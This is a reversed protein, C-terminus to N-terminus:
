QDDTSPYDQPASDEPAPGLMRDFLRELLAPASTATTPDLASQTLGVITFAILHADLDIPPAPTTPTIHRIRRLYHAIVDVLPLFGGIADTMAFSDGSTLAAAFFADLVITDQRRPEDLPLLETLIIRLADRPAADTGLAALRQGFRNAADELVARHTALLFERKTGFYYQVLRVSIGAEAAVSQFTAAELGGRAMVNRVATTIERRRVDHDVLKPM